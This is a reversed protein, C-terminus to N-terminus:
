LVLERGETISLEGYGGLKDKAWVRNNQNDAQGGFWWIIDGVGARRYDNTREELSDITTKALQIEHVETNGDPYIVCIDARREVDALWFEKLIRTGEYGRLTALKEAIAQKACMHENGEGQSLACDRTSGPNHKFHTIRIMSQYVHMPYKCEPCRLEQDALTIRPTEYRTIDVIRYEVDSGKPRAEATLPM